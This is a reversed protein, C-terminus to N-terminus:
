ELVNGKAYKIGKKNTEFEMPTDSMWISHEGQRLQVSQYDEIFVCRCMGDEEKYFQQETNMPITIKRIEFNGIKKNEHLNYLDKPYDKNMVPKCGIVLSNILSENM